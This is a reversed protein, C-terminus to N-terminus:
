NMEAAAVLQAVIASDSAIRGPVYRVWGIDDPGVTGTCELQVGRPAFQAAAVADDLEFPNRHVQQNQERLPVAVDDRARLDDLPEPALLDVDVGFVADVGGDPLDADRQALVGLMRPENEGYRPTPLSKEDIFRSVDGDSRLGVRTTERDDLTARGTRSM